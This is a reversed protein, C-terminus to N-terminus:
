KKRVPNCERGAVLLGTSREDACRGNSPNRSRESPASQAPRDFRGKSEKYAIRLISDLPAVENIVLQHETREPSPNGSKLSRRKVPDITRAIESYGTIRGSRSSAEKFPGRGEMCSGFISETFRSINVM